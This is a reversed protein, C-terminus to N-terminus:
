NQKRRNLLKKWRSFHSQKKLESQSSIIEASDPNLYRYLDDLVERVTQYRDRFDYKVMNTLIRAFKRNINVKDQWIFELTEDRKLEGPRQGTLFQIAILGVSYIDSSSGPKGMTHEAAMYEPTGAAMTYDKVVIGEEDFSQASAATVTGFDILVIKCDDDRRMLNEPKLDRHITDNKHVVSLTKLVDQLFDIVEPESWQKETEGSLENGLILEQVLYFDKQSYEFLEPIQSHQGLEHLAQAERKFLERAKDLQSPKTFSPNLQKIVCKLDFRRTDEALYTQGFSGGGLREIIKYRNDLLEGPQLERFM